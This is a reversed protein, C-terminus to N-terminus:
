YTIPLSVSSGPEAIVRGGDIILMGDDIAADVRGGIVTPGLTTLAVDDLYTTPLWVNSGPDAIVTGPVTTLMGVSTAAM